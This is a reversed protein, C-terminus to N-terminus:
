KEMAQLHIGITHQQTIDNLVTIYKTTFQESLM